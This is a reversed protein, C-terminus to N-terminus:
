YKTTVNDFKIQVFSMHIKAVTGSTWDKHGSMRLIVMASMQWLTHSHHEIKTTNKISEKRSEM